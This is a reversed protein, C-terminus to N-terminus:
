LSYLMLRVSAGTVTLCFLSAIYLGAFWAKKNSSNQFTTTRRDESKQAMSETHQTMYINDM